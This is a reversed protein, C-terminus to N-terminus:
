GQPSKVALFAIYEKEGIKGKHLYSFVVLPITISKGEIIGGDLDMHRDLISNEPAYIISDLYATAPIDQFPTVRYGRTPSILKGGTKALEKPIYCSMITPYKQLLTAINAQTQLNEGWRFLERKM